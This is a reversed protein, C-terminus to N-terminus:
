RRRERFHTAIMKNQTRNLFDRAMQTESAHIAEEKTMKHTEVNRLLIAVHDAVAQVGDRFEIEVAM